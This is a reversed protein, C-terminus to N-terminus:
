CSWTTRTVRTSRRGLLRPLSWAAVKTKYRKMMNDRRRKMEEKGGKNRKGAKAYYPELM